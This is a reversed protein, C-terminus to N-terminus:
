ARGKSLRQILHCIKEVMQTINEGEFQTPHIAEIKKEISDFLDTSYPRMLEVFVMFVDAFTDDDKVKQELRKRLTDKLSAYLFQRASYDNIKDWEDFNSILNLSLTRIAKSHLRHYEELVSSMKNTIPDKRYTITDLGHNKFAILLQKSFDDLDDKVSFRKNPEEKYLGERRANYSPTSKPGSGRLFNPNETDTPAGELDDWAANPKGGTWPVWIGSILKVGGM